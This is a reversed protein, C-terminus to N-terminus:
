IIVDRFHAIEKEDNRIQEDTKRENSADNQDKTQNEHSHDQRSRRKTMTYVKSYRKKNQTNIHITIIFYM